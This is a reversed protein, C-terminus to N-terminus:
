FYFCVLNCTSPDTLIQSEHLNLSGRCSHGVDERNRFIQKYNKNKEFITGELPGMKKKNKQKSHM